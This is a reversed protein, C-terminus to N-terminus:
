WARWILLNLEMSIFGERENFCHIINKVWRSYVFCFNLCFYESIWAIRPTSNGILKMSKSMILNRESSTLTLNGLFTMVRISCVTLPGIVNILFHMSSFDRTFTLISPLSMSTQFKKETMKWRTYFVQTNKRRYRLRNWWFPACFYM